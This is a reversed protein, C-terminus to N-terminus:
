MEPYVKYILRGWDAIDYLVFLPSDLAYCLTVHEALQAAKTTQLLKVVAYIGSKVEMELNEAEAGAADDDDDDDDESDNLCGGRAMHALQNPQHEYCGVCAAAPTCVRMKMSGEHSREHHQAIFDTWKPTFSLRMDSTTLSALLRKFEVTELTIQGGVCVQSLPPTLEGFSAYEANLFRCRYTFCSAVPGPLKVYLDITPKDTTMSKTTVCVGVSNAARITQVANAWEDMNLPIFLSQLGEMVYYSGHVGLSSSDLTFGVEMTGENDKQSILELSDPKVVLRAELVIHRVADFLRKVRLGLVTTWMWTCDEQKPMQKRLYYLRSQIGEPDYGEGYVPVTTPPPPPPPHATTTTTTSALKEDSVEAM